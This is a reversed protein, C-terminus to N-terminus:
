CENASKGHWFTIKVSIKHRKNKKKFKAFVYEVKVDHDALGLGNIVVTSIVDMSPMNGGEKVKRITLFRPVNFEWSQKGQM